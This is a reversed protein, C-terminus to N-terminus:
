SSSHRDLPTLATGLDSDLAPLPESGSVLFFFFFFFFHLFVKYDTDVGRRQRGGEQWPTWVIESRPDEAGERVCM